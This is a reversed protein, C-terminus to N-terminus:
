HSTAPTPQANAPEADSSDAAAESGEKEATSYLFKSILDELVVASSTMTIEDGDVLDDDSGTQIDIYQEGLLGATKIAAISDRSFKKDNQMSLKVVAKYEHPDFEISTVRGVVVGSSKVAARTKLSGINDFKAVLTYTPQFSFTSLNGARLALFLLALCGLLVFIGVIFEVRKNTM